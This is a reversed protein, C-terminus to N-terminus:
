GLTEITIIMGPEQQDEKRMHCYTARAISSHAGSTFREGM